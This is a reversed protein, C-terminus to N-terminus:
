VVRMTGQSSENKADIMGRLQSPLLCHCCGVTSGWGLVVGGEGVGGGGEAGPAVEEREGGEGKGDGEGFGGGAETGVEVVEAEVVGEDRDEDEDEREDGMGEGDDERDEEEGCPEEEVEGAVLGHGDEIELDVIPDHQNRETESSNQDQSQGVHPPVDENRRQNRSTESTQM